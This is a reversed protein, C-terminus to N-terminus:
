YSVDFFVAKKLWNPAEQKLIRFNKIIIKINEKQKYNAHNFITSTSM